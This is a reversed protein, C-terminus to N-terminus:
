GGLFIDHKVLCPALFALTEPPFTAAISLYSGDKLNLCFINQIYVKISDLLKM